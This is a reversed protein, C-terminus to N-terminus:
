LKAKFWLVCTVLPCVPTCGFWFPQYWTNLSARLICSSRRSESSDRDIYSPFTCFMRAGTCPHLCLVDAATWPLFKILTSDCQNLCSAPIVQCHGFPWAASGPCHPVM